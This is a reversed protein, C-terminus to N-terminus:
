QPLIIVDRSHVLSQLRKVPSVLSGAYDDASIQNSMDTNPKVFYGSEIAFIRGDATIISTGSSGGFPIMGGVGVRKKYSSKDNFLDIEANEAVKGYLVTLNIRGGVARLAPQWLDTGVQLDSTELNATRSRRFGTPAYFIALDLAPDAIYSKIPYSKELFPNVVSAPLGKLKFNFTPNETDPNKEDGEVSVFTHGCTLYIGSSDIMVANTSYFGNEVKTRVLSLNNTINPIKNFSPEASIQLLELLYEKDLDNKISPKELVLNASKINSYTFAPTKELQINPIVDPMTPMKPDKIWDFAVYAGGSLAVASTGLLGGILLRRKKRNSEEIGINKLSQEELIRKRREARTPKRESM